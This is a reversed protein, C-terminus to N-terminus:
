VISVLSDHFPKSPFNWNRSIKFKLKAITKRSKVPRTSVICCLRKQLESLFTCDNFYKHVVPYSFAWQSGIWTQPRFSSDIIETQNNFSHSQNSKAPQHPSKQGIGDTLNLRRNATMMKWRHAAGRVEMEKREPFNGSFHWSIEDMGTFLLFVAANGVRIQLRKM